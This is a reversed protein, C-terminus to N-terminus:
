RREADRLASALIMADGNLPVIAGRTRPQYIGDGKNIPHGSLACHGKHRAVAPAWIQEEYNCVTPDHWSLAVLSNALEELVNITHARTHARPEGAGPSKTHRAPAQRLSHQQPQAVERPSTCQGLAEIVRAWLESAKDRRAAKIRSRERTDAPPAACTAEPENAAQANSM